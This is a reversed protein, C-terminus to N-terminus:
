FLSHRTILNNFVRISIRRDFYEVAAKRSNVGMAELEKPHSVMWEIVETMNKINGPSVQIGCKFRAAILSIESDKDVWAIFPKGCALIGYIKSPVMIGALGEQMTILHIDPASLSYKLEEKPQYPLLEINTLKKEQILNQLRGKEAGDGVLIFKVQSKGKFYDAVEIIKDLGQTLGINGSYMITFYNNLNYKSIFTNESPQVPCLVSTDAWDYVIDIKNPEIGREIIRKKMDEGLCIVKDSWEFSIQNIIKLLFNLIPNTLRGTIIGVDPYIDKCSYIFKAKYWKSFVIGLLGSLPPDTQAIVIGPTQRVFFGAIFAFLFYTGLNILRFLLISKSFRTSYARFIDIGKYSEYAIFKFASKNNVHYSRGCVVTVHHGLKVLDECLETLFQGTAETDPYFSRNFFLLNM